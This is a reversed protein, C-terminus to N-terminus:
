LIQHKKRTREKTKFVLPSSADSWVQEQMPLLRGLSGANVVNEFGHRRLATALANAEAGADCYVVLPKAKRTPLDGLRAEVQSLLFPSFAHGGCLM